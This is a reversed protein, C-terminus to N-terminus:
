PGGDSFLKGFERALAVRDVEGEARDKEGEEEAKEPEVQGKRASDDEEPEEPAPEELEETAPAPEGEEEQVPELVPVARDEIEPLAELEEAPPAERQEAPTSTAAEAALASLEAVPDTDPVEVEVDERLDAEPPAQDAIPVSAEPEPAREPEPEIVPEPEQEPEPEVVPEPEPEPEPVVPEPEPVVPEPEPELPEPEPVVPEPEPEVPEPEVVPEPEPPLGPEVVPGPAPPAEPVPPPPPPAPPPPPVRIPAPPAQAPRAQESPRVTPPELVPAETAAKMEGEEDAKTVDVVRESLEALEDEPVDTPIVPPELAEEAVREREPPRAAAPLRPEPKAPELRHLPSRPRRPLDPKQVPAATEGEVRLRAEEAQRLMFDLKDLLLGPRVTPATVIVAAYAGRRAMVWIEEGLDLFGRHPDGIAQVADWVERGKEEVSEPFAGLTLGDSSLLLCVRVDQLGAAMRAALANFDQSYM